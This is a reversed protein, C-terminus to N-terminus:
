RGYLISRFVRVSRLGGLLGVEAREHPHEEGAKLVDETDDEENPHRPNHAGAASNLPEKNYKKTAASYTNLKDLYNIM